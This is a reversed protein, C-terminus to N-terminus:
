SCAEGVHGRFVYIDPIVTIYHDANLDLRTHFNPNGDYQTGVQGRFSYIDPIVTVFTDMNMDLPWADDADNDPCADLQDTPLYCEVDDDFGDSDTDHDPLCEGPCPEDVAIKANLITGDFYGYQDVPGVPNGSPNLLQVGSTLSGDPRLDFNAKSIGPGIATLELRGLAGSGTHGAGTTDHTGLTCEGDDGVPDEYCDKIPGYTSSGLFFSNTTLSNVHLVSEDFRFTGDWKHLNAVDQVILDIYFTDNHSVSICGNITGLSTATNGAPNADVGIVTEGESLPAQAAGSHETSLTAQAVGRHEIFAYTGACIFTLVIASLFCAWAPKAMM